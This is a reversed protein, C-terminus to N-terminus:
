SKVAKKRRRSRLIAQRVAESKKNLLKGIEPSSYGAITLILEIDPDEGEAKIRKIQFYLIARLLKIIEDLQKENDPM